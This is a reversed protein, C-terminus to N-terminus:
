NKEYVSVGASILKAGKPNRSSPFIIGGSKTRPQSSGPISSYHLFVFQLKIVDIGRTYVSISWYFQIVGGLHSLGGGQIHDLALSLLFINPTIIPTVLFIVTLLLRTTACSEIEAKKM